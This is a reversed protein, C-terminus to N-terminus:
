ITMNLIKDFTKVFEDRVLKLQKLTRSAEAVTISVELASAEDILAEKTIDEASKLRHGVKKVVHGVAGTKVPQNVQQYNKVHKIIETSSMNQFKNFNETVKSQFSVAKNYVDDNKDVVKPRDQIENYLNQAAIMNINNPM